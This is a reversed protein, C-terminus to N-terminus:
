PALELLYIDYNSSAATVSGSSSSGSSFDVTSTFRGAIFCHGNSNYTASIGEEHGVGFVRSWRPTGDPGFSAAFANQGAGASQLGKGFDAAPTIKGTFVINNNSDSAVGCGADPAATGFSKSWMHSGDAGSYKALFVDEFGKSIMNTGGLNITYTFSGTFIVNGARDVTL